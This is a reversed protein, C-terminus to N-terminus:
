LQAIDRKIHRYLYQGPINSRSENYRFQTEIPNQMRASTVVFIGGGDETFIQPTVVSKNYIIEHHHVNRAM